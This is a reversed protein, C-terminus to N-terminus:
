DFKRLYAAIKERLVPENTTVEDPLTEVYELMERVQESTYTKRNPDKMREKVRAIQEESFYVPEQYTDTKEAM